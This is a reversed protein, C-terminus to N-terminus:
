KKAGAERVLAKAARMNQVLPKKAPCSYSCSGCEMCVMVGAKEVAEADGAKAHRVIVTPMLSMPCATACRGCRICDSEKTLAADRETFALIANNSKSVPLDTSVISLGMM